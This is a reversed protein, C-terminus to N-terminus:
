IGNTESDFSLGIVGAASGPRALKTASGVNTASGMKTTSVLRAAPYVHFNPFTYSFGM